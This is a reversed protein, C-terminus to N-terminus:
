GPVDIEADDLIVDYTRGAQVEGIQFRGVPATGWNGAKSLSTVTMGDVSVSSTSAAGNIRLTVELLHWGPGPAVASTLTVAAADNRLAL